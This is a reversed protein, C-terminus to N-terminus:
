RNKEKKRKKKDEEDAWEEMHKVEPGLKWRMKWSPLLLVRRERVCRLLTVM